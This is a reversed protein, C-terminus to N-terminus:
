QKYIVLEQGIKLDFGSLKNWERILDIDVAYRKSISYLTEKLRVTHLIRETRIENRDKVPTVKAVVESALRPASPAKDHLYLKEGPAPLLQLQLLNLELLNKLRIGEKQAIDYLNEGRQVIHFENLGTKRKRQLYVLQDKLLIDEGTLDNFDLLRALNVSYEQAISLLSTGQKRFIVRTNNIEFEGEPYKVPTIIETIEGQVAMVQGTPVETKSTPTTAVAFIQHDAPLKNLAILTYQNLNYDEILKIIIQSYKVNTAYGAKKLGYAWSRFDTPDYEFLFSYRSGNRLFNSHDIYSDAPSSYSRFCEGRADDDHYVKEGTWTSKCKIGFHNNSKLVLESKGAFTEHIGQALKISAPVGTRQMESVAIDKYNAIYTYIDTKPQAFVLSITFMLALSFLIKKMRSIKKLNVITQTYDM